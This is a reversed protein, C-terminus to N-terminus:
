RSVDRCEVVSARKRFRCSPAHFAAEACQGTAPNLVVEAALLPDASGVGYAGRRGRLVIGILGRGRSSRDRIQVSVIGGPPAAGRDVHTWSTPRARRDVKWGSGTRPDFRGPAVDAAVVPEGLRTRVVFRLGNAVPDLPPMIPAPLALAGRFALRDDGPPSGLGTIRLVPDSMAAVTRAHSCLHTALDCTDATCVDGDACAADSACDDVETVFSATCPQEDDEGEGGCGGDSKVTATNAIKGTATPVVVITVTARSSTALAGLSCVVPATGSCTGQSANASVFTTGAPPMDTLVIGTDANIAQVTVTYTVPRGVRVPDPSGGSESNNIVVCGSLAAALVCTLLRDHM